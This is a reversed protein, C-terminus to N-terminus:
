LQSRSPAACCAETALRWRRRGLMWGQRSHGRGAPGRRRSMSVLTNKSEGLCSRGEGSRRRILRHAMLLESPLGRGGALRRRRHRTQGAEVLGQPGGVRQLQGVLRARGVEPVDDDVAAVHGHRSDASGRLRVGIGDAASLAPTQTEAGGAVTEVAEEGAPPDRQGHLGEPPPAVPVDGDEDRLPALLPVTESCTALFGSGGAAM